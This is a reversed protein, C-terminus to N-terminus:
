RRLILGLVFGAAAAIGLARWPNKRTSLAIDAELAHLEHAIDNLAAEGAALKGSMSDQAIAAIEHAGKRGFKSVTDTLSSLDQRLQAIDASIADKAETKTTTNM